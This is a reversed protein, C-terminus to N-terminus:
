WCSRLRQHESHFRTFNRIVKDEKELSNLPFFYNSCKIFKYVNDNIVAPFNSSVTSSSAATQKSVNMIQIRQSRRFEEARTLDAKPKEIQNDVNPNNIKPEVQAQSRTVKPSNIIVAEQIRRSTKQIEDRKRKPTSSEAEELSPIMIGNKLQNVIDDVKDVRQPQSLRRTLRTTREPEKLNNNFDEHFFPDDDVHKLSYIKENKENREVIIGMILLYEEIEDDTM